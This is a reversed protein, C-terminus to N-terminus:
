HNDKIVLQLRLDLDPADAPIDVSLFIEAFTTANQVSLWEDYPKGGKAPDYSKM